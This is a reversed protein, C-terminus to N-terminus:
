KWRNQLGFFFGVLVGGPWWRPFGTKCRAWSTGRFRSTRTPMKHGFLHQCNCWCLCCLWSGGGFFIELGFYIRSSVELWTEWFFCLFGEANKQLVRLRSAAGWLNGHGDRPVFQGIWRQLHLHWSGPLLPLHKVAFAGKWTVFFFVFPFCFFHDDELGKGVMCKEPAVFDELKEPPIGPKKWCMWPPSMGLNLGEWATEM